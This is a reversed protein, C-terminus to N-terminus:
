AEGDDGDIWCASQCAGYDELLAPTVDSFYNGDRNRLLAASWGPDNTYVVFVDVYGDNDYDGWAMNTSPGTYGFGTAEGVFHGTGDNLLFHDANSKNLFSLDSDQDNDHDVWAAGQGVKNDDLPPDDDCPVVELM